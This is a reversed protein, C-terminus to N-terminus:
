CSEHNALWEIGNRVKTSLTFCLKAETNAKNKGYSFLYLSQSLLPDFYIFLVLKLSSCTYYISPLELLFWLRQLSTIKETSLPYANASFQIQWFSWSFVFAGNSAIVSAKLETCYSCNLGFVPIRLVLKLPFSVLNIRRFDESKSRVKKERQAFTKPRKKDFNCEVNGSFSRPSNQLFSLKYEKPTHSIVTRCRKWFQRKHIWLSM